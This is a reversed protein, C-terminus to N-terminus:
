EQPRLADIFTAPMWYIGNAGAGLFFFYKGDPSVRASIGELEDHIKVAPLWKGSRSRYSIYFNQGESTFRTFVIYSEDPAVHPCTESNETNIEPGM